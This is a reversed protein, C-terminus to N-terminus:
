TRRTVLPCEFFVRIQLNKDNVTWESKVIGVQYNEVKGSSNAAAKCTLILMMEKQQLVYCNKSFRRSVKRFEQYRERTWLGKRLGTSHGNQVFRVSVQKAV